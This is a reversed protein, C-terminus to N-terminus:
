DCENTVEHVEIYEYVKRVLKVKFDKKCEEAQCSWTAFTQSIGLISMFRNCHPCQIYTISSKKIASM